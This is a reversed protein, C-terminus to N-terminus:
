LKRKKEINRMAGAKEPRTEGGGEKQERKKPKM